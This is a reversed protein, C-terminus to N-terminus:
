GKGPQWGYNDWIGPLATILAEYLVGLAPFIKWNVANFFYFNDKLRWCTFLKYKENGGTSFKQNIANEIQM